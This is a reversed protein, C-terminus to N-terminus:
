SEILVPGAESLSEARSNIRKAFGSPDVNHLDELMLYALSRGFDVEHIESNRKLLDRWLDLVDSFDPVRIGSVMHYTYFFGYNRKIRKVQFTGCFEGKVMLPLFDLFQDQLFPMPFPPETSRQEPQFWFIGNMPGNERRLFRIVGTYSLSEAPVRPINPNRSNALTVALSGNFIPVEM